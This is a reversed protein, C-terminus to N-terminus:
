VHRAEGVRASSTNNKNLGALVARLQEGSSLLERHFLERYYEATISRSQELLQETDIRKVM